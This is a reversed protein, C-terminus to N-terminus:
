HSAPAEPKTEPLPTVELLDMTRQEEILDVGLAKLLAARTGAVDKRAFELELDFKGSVGSENIVPAGLPQELAAALQDMNSNFATLKGDWYNQWSKNNWVPPPMPKGSTATPKLVYVKTQARKPTVTIHLGSCIASRLVATRTTADADGFVAYFDLPEDPLPAAYVLRGSSIQYAYTLLYDSDTNMITLM